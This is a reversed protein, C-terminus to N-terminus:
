WSANWDILMQNLRKLQRPALPAHATDGHVFGHLMSLSRPVGLLRLPQGFEVPFKVVACAHLLIRRTVGFRRFRDRARLGQEDGQMFLYAERLLPSCPPEDAGLGEVYRAYLIELWPDRPVPKTARAEFYQRTAWTGSPAAGLVRQRYFDKFTGCANRIERLGGHPGARDCPKVGHARLFADISADRSASLQAPDNFFQWLAMYGLGFEREITRHYATLTRHKSFVGNLLRRRYDLDVRSMRSGGKTPAAVYPKVKRVTLIIKAFLLATFM